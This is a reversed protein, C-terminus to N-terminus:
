EVIWVRGCENCRRNFRISTPNWYLYEAPLEYDLDVDDDGCIPCTEIEPEIPVECGELCQVYQGVVHEGRHGCPAVGIRGSPIRKAM